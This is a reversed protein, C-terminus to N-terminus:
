EKGPDNNKTRKLMTIIKIMKMNNLHSWLDQMFFILMNLMVYVLTSMETQNFPRASLLQIQLDSM